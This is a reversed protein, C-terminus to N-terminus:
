DMGGGDSLNIPIKKSLFEYAEIDNSLGVSVDYFNDGVDAIIQAIHVRCHENM